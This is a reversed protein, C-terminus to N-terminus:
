KVRFWLKVKEFPTPFERYRRNKPINIFNDVFDFTKFVQDSAGISLLLGSGMSDVHNEEISNPIDYWVRFQHGDFMGFYKVFSFMISNRGKSTFIDGFIKLAEAERKDVFANEWLDFLKIALNIRDQHLLSIATLAKNIKQIEASGQSNDFFKISLNSFEKM